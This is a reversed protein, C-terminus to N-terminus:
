GRIYGVGETELGKVAAVLVKPEEEISPFEGAFSVECHYYYHAWNKEAQVVVELGLRAIKLRVYHSTKDLIKSTARLSKNEGLRARM